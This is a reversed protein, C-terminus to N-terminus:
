EVRLSVEDVFNNGDYYRWTLNLINIPGEEKSEIGAEDSTYDGNVIWRGGGQM